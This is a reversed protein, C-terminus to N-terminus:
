LIRGLVGDEVLGFGGVREGDRLFLAPVLHPDKTKTYAISYGACLGGPFLFFFFTYSLMITVQYSKIQHTHTHTYTHLEFSICSFPLRHDLILTTLPAKSQPSIMAQM